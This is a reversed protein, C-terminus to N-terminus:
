KQLETKYYISAFKITESNKFGSFGFGNWRYSEILTVKNQSDLNIFSDGRHLAVLYKKDLTLTADILPRSLASGRWLDILGTKTISYVYPRLGNERDISSYHRELTFLYNHKEDFYASSISVMSIPHTQWMKKNNQYGVLIIKNETKNNISIPFLDMGFYKEPQSTFLKPFNFPSEKIVEPFFSNKTTHTTIGKYTVARGKILCEVMLGEKTSLYKQDFLHNGLSFFVPKGKILEPAQIVHPHHGIILDAGNEVLWEAETRQYQNPWDLLESGWHISVIVFNSLSKALRLKQKLEISPVKQNHGGIDGITNISIISIVKNKLRFFQPSNALYIPRISDNLVEIITSDRNKTGLDYSHNNELSLASFGAERLLVLHKKQIDFIVNTLSSDKKQDPTGVAGELNGIVLDASKLRSDLYMWPNTRRKEVELRVNRSLLIDGVFIIRIEKQSSSVCGSYFLISLLILLWKTTSIIIRKVVYLTKDM